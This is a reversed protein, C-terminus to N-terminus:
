ALGGGEGPRQTETQGMDSSLHHPRTRGTSHGTDLEQPPGDGLQPPTPHPHIVVQGEDPRRFGM